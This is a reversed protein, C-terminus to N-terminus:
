WVRSPMLPMLLTLLTFLACATHPMLPGRAVRSTLPAAHAVHDVGAVHGTRAIDKAHGVAGDVGQGEVGQVDTAIDTATAIVTDTDTVTDPAMHPVSVLLEAAGAAAAGSAWVGSATAAVAVSRRINKNM